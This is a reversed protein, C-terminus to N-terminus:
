QDDGQTQLPFLQVSLEYVREKSGSELFTLLENQFKQIRKKAEPLLAPDIAMTMATHNRNEIPDNELSQKSKDIIQLQRRRHAITTLHQDATNIYHDTKIWSGNKSELLGLEFLRDVALETEEQSIGLQKSIWAIKPKFNKTYTLELIAYHYWESIMKFVELSVERGSTAGTGENLRSRLNPSIRKLGQERKVQALSLLFQSQEEPTFGLREFIKEALKESILRKGKLIQQFTSADLKLQKAMARASFRPNSQIKQELRGLLVKRYYPLTLKEM